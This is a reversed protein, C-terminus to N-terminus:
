EPPYLPRKRGKGGDIRVERSRHSNIAGGPGAKDQCLISVRIRRCKLAGVAIQRETSVIGVPVQDALRGKIVFEDRIGCSLDLNGPGGRSLHPIHDVPIIEHGKGTGPRHAPVTKLLDCTLRTDNGDRDKVLSKGKLREARGVKLLHSRDGLVQKPGAGPYGAIHLHPV